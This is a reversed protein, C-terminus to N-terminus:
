LLVQREEGRLAESARDRSGSRAAHNKRLLFFIREDHMGGHMKEALNWFRWLIAKAGPYPVM